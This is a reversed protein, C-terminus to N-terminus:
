RFKGTTLFDSLTRRRGALRERGEESSHPRRAILSVYGAPSDQGGRIPALRLQFPLLNRIRSRMGRRGARDM